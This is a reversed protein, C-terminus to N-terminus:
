FVEACGLNALVCARRTIWSHAIMQMHTQSIKYVQDRTHSQPCRQSVWNRIFTFSSRNEPQPWTSNHTHTHPRGSSHVSVGSAASHCRHLTQWVHLM